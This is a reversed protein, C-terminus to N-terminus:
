AAETLEERVQKAARIEANQPFSGITTTPILALNLKEQQAKFRVKFPEPRAHGVLNFAKDAVKSIKLIVQM